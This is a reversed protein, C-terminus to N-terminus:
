ENGPMLDSVSNKTKESVSSATDAGSEAVSGATSTVSAGAEKTRGVAGAALDDAGALLEGLQFFPRLRNSFQVRLQGFQDSLRHHFGVILLLATKAGSGFEVMCIYQFERQGHCMAGPVLSEKVHDM